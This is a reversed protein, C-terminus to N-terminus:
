KSIKEAPKSSPKIGPFSKKQSGGSNNNNNNSPNRPQYVPNEKYVKSQQGTSGPCPTCNCPLYVKNSDKPDVYLSDYMYEKYYGEKVLKKDYDRESIDFIVGIKFQEVRPTVKDIKLNYNLGNFTSQDMDVLNVPTGSMMEYRADLSISPSLRLRAGVGFGYMLSVSTHANHTSSSESEKLDLYSSVTQGTSYMRPGAFVNVYPVLPFKAYELHARGLLDMSYTRLRTFGSDQTTNNLVVNSKQGKGYFQMGWDLGGYLGWSKNNTRNGSMFQLNFGGSRVDKNLPRQGTFHIGIWFDEVTKARAKAIYEYEENVWIKRTFVRYTKGDTTVMRVSDKFPENPDSSGEATTSQLSTKGKAIKKEAKGMGTKATNLIPEDATVAHEVQSTALHNKYVDMAATKNSTGLLMWTALSFISLTSMITMIFLTKKYDNFKQQPVILVPNLDDKDLLTKMHEWSAVDYDAKYSLFGENFLEDPLISTNKKM